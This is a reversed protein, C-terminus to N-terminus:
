PGGPRPAGAAPRAPRAPRALRCRALTGLAIAGKTARALRVVDGRTPFGRDEVKDLLRRYIAGMIEAAFLTRELGRGLERAGEYHERARAAEFALLPGRLPGHGLVEDETLGFRRLDEQPLYFRGLRADPGLDRLINTLQLATGLTGAYRDAQLDGAGFIRVCIRGVAGAVLDCYHALDAWSEFRRPTMDLAVGDLVQDFYARPLAFRAVATGLQQGVATGPAGRFVADLEARWGDLRERAADASPADDVADDVAHCFAYVAFIAERRPRPLTLFAYFFNTGSARALKRVISAAGPAAAPGSPLVHDRDPATSM